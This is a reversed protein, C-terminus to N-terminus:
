ITELEKYPRELHQQMIESAKAADKAKVAEYINQHYRLTDERKEIPMAKIILELQSHIMIKLTEMLKYCLDNKACEVIQMHFQYDLDAFVTYDSNIQNKTEIIIGYLKDLDEATAREAARAVMEIQIARRLEFLSKSSTKEFAMIYLLPFYTKNENPNNVIIGKRPTVTIIGLFEMVRLAERFTPRSVNFMKILEQENYLKDGYEIQGTQILEIFSEVIMFYIKKRKVTDIFMNDM